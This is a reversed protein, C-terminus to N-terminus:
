VFGYGKSNSTYAGIPSSMSSTIKKAKKVVDESFANREILHPSLLASLVDRFFAIHKQNNHTTDHVAPTIRSFDYDHGEQMSERFKDGAQEIPGASDYKADIISQRISGITLM